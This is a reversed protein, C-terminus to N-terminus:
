PGAAQQRKTMERVAVQLKHFRARTAAEAQKYCAREYELKIRTELETAPADQAKPASQGSSASAGGTNADTSALKQDLAAVKQGSPKAASSRRETTVTEATRKPAECDPAKVSALLAQRRLTRATVRDATGRVTGQEPAMSMAYQEDGFEPGCGAALFLVGACTLALRLTKLRNDGSAPPPGNCM